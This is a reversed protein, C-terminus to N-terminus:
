VEYSGTISAVYDGEYGGTVNLTYVGGCRGTINAIYVALYRSTKNATCTRSRTRAISVGEYKGTINAM